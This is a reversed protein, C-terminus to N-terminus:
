FLYIPNLNYIISERCSEIRSQLRAACLTRHLTLITHYSVYGPIRIDLTWLYFSMPQTNSDNPWEGITKFYMFYLVYNVLFVLEFYM